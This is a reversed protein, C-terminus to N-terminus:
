FLSQLLPILEQVGLTLLYPYVGFLFAIAIISVALLVPKSTILEKTKDISDLKDQHEEIKSGHVQQTYHIDSITKIMHNNQQRQVSLQEMIYVDKNSCGDLLHTPIDSKFDPIDLKVPKKEDSM